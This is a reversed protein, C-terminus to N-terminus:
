GEVPGLTVRAGCLRLEMVGDVIVLRLVELPARGSEGGLSVEETPAGEGARMALAGQRKRSLADIHALVRDARGFFRDAPTLGDIGMHARRENYDGLFSALRRRAVSWDQMHEVDWLERRLTGILSEVKGGGQPHYARGVIHDILEVELYDALEKALFGGGRDTRICEPKGHRAVARSLTEITAKASPEECLAHGVCYRSFDDVVVLVHHREGAARLEAFDLQWLANRRPAEFRVPEPGQPRSGRHVPEYGHTRLVRAIAKISLRWGRFRKLQARIQAAQMSPHKRKLELIAAQEPESLGQGPDKPAYLARPAPTTASQASTKPPTRPSKPPASPMTGEAEARARWRRLSETTTGISEAVEERKMGAAILMLAQTVQGATFRRGRAPLRKPATQARAEKAAVKRKPTSTKKTTSMAEEDPM